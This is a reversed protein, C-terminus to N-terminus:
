RNVIIDYVFFLIYRKLSVTGFFLIGVRSGRIKSECGAGDRIYGSPHSPVKGATSAALSQNHDTM